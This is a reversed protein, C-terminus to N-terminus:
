CRNKKSGNSITIENGPPQALKDNIIEAELEAALCEGIVKVWYSQYNRAACINVHYSPHATGTTADM